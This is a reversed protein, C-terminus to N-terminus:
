EGLKGMVIPLVIAGGAHLGAAKNPDPLLFVYRMTALLGSGAFVSVCPRWGRYSTDSGNNEVFAIGAGYGASVPLASRSSLPMSWLGIDQIEFFASSAQSYRYNCRTFGITVNGIGFKESAWFFDGASVKFGWALGQGGNYGLLFGPSLYWGAAPSIFFMCVIIFISVRKMITYDNADSSLNLDSLADTKKGVVRSRTTDM